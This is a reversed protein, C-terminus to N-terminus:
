YIINIAQDMQIEESTAYSVAMFCKACAKWVVCVNDSCLKSFRPLLVEETAQQGVVSCIDGFNAACVKRVHFARCDCCMEFFRPLILHETIDKGVMPPM